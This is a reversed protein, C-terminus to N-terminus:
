RRSCTELVNVDADPNYNCALEDFCGISLCTGDEDTALPDYNFAELDTCGPIEEEDCVNDGDTDNNCEGDCDRYDTEYFCTGDDDTAAADF